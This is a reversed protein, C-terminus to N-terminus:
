VMSVTDRKEMIAYCEMTLIQWLKNVYTGRSPCNSQKLNKVIDSLVKQADKYM